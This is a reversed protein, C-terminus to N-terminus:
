RPEPTIKTTLKSCKECRKGTNRDNVKLMSIGYQLSTMVEWPANVQEVKIVFASSCFKTLKLLTKSLTKNLNKRYMINEQVVYIKELVKFIRTVTTSGKLKWKMDVPKHFATHLIIM